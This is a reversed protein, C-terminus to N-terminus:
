DKRNLFNLVQRTGKDAWIEMGKVIRSLASHIEEEEASTFTSLVFESGTEGELPKGIGIRVRFFADTQLYSMMSRIGKHGADGGKWKLKTRGVDLDMDDHFVVMHEPKLGERDLIWRAAKGSLNMFTSPKMMYVRNGRISGKWVKGHRTEGQLRGGFREILRDIARYGTNHRTKVYRTGPNGLGIWIFPLTDPFDM